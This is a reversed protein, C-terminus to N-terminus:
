TDNALMWTNFLHQGEVVEAAEPNSREMVVEYRQKSVGDDVTVWVTGRFNNFICANDM